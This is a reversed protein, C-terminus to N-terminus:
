VIVNEKIMKKKMHKKGSKINMKKLAEIAKISEPRVIDALAIAGLLKNESLVFM